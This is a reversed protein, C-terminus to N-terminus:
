VIDIYIILSGLIYNDLDLKLSKQGMILQIDYILYFCYAILSAIQLFFMLMDSRIFFNIFSVFFISSLIVFLISNFVTIDKKTTCAYVFLSITAGATLLAAQLVVMKDFALTFHSVTYGECLTFLALSLYNYPVRKTVAEVFYM